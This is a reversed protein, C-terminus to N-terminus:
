GTVDEATRTWLIGLGHILEERGWPGPYRTCGLVKSSRSYEGRGILISPDQPAYSFVAGESRVNCEKWLRLAIPPTDQGRLVGPPVVTRLDSLCCHRISLSPIFLFLIIYPLPDRTGDEVPRRPSPVRPEPLSMAITHSPYWEAMERCAKMGTGMGSDIQLMYAALISLLASPGVHTRTPAYSLAGLWCLLSSVFSM